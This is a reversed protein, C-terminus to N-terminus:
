ETIKKSFLSKRKPKGASKNEGTVDQEKTEGNGDAEKVEPEVVEVAEPEDEIRVKEYAVGPDRDADEVVAGSRPDRFKYTPM